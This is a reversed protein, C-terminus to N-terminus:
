DIGNVLRPGIVRLAGQKGYHPLEPDSNVDRKTMLEIRMYIARKKLRNGKHLLCEGGDSCCPMAGTEETGGKSGVIPVELFVSM